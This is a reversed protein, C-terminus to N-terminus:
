RLSYRIKGELVNRTGDGTTKSRRYYLCFPSLGELGAPKAWCADFQDTWGVSLNKEEQTSSVQWGAVCDFVRDLHVLYMM